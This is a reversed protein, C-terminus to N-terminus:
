TKPCPEVTQADGRADAPRGRQRCTGDPPSTGDQTADSPRTGAEGAPLARLLALLECLEAPLPAVLTLRQGSAPHPLTLREAHLVMRELNFRRRFLRNHEAKGYRVDGVIPHNIHKLHRRIQHPRGSRPQAELWTYCRTIRTEDNEVEFVELRAVHTSSPLKPKGKEKALPHDVLVREPAMGRVLALYRKDIQDAVFAREISRAGDPDLAFVLVGSTARDLRHVPHVHRGALRRALDLATVRDTAWGRHVVLGAPKNVVLLSEDRYLVPLVPATSDASTPPPM